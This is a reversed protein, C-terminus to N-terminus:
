KSSKNGPKTTAMDTEKPSPYTLEHHPTSDGARLRAGRPLEARERSFM